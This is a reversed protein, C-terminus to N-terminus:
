RTSALAQGALVKAREYNALANSNWDAEYRAVQRRAEADKRNGAFLLLFDRDAANAASVLPTYALAHAQRVPRRM